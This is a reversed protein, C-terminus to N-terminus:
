PLAVALNPEAATKVVWVQACSECRFLVNADTSISGTSKGHASRCRPCLANAQRAARLHVDRIETSLKDLLASRAAADRTFLLREALSRIRDRVPNVDDLQAYSVTEM